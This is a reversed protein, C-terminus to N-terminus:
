LLTCHWQGLWHSAGNIALLTGLPMAINCKTNLHFWVPNIVKVDILSHISTFIAHQNFKLDFQTSSSIWTMQQYLVIFWSLSCLSPQVTTNCTDWIRIISDRGSSYLRKSTEDYQLSNVGSRHQHEVENRIVYSVQLLLDTNWMSSKVM